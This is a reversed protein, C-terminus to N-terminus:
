KEYRKMIRESRQRSCADDDTGLAAGVLSPRRVRRPSGGGTLSVSMISEQKGVRPPPEAAASGTPTSPAPSYSDERRA